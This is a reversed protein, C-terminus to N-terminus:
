VLKSHRNLGSLYELRDAISTVVNVPNEPAYKRAFEEASRRFQPVTLLAQIGDIMEGGKDPAADLGAGLHTVLRATLWQELSKPINFIPKGAKLFAAVSAHGANLIAMDCEAAVVRLDLPEKEFQISQCEHEEHLQDSIGDAHVLVRHGSAKLWGLLEPLAPFPKLYAFIKKDSAKPWKPAKGPMQAYVGWYTAGIRNQYHDLEAYTTLFNEDVQAYLQSVRNLPAQKWGTLMRNIQNLVFDEAAVHQPMDGDFPWLDPMPYRDVPACFGSGLLARKAPAMRAALLATPSHDCIVVDPQVLQYLYMWAQVMASLEAVDGFGNNFLIHPFTRPPHICNSSTYRTRHPAQLFSTGQEFLRAARSLDRLAAFVKHGRRCLEKALVSIKALHGLGEGLEWAFFFTAM